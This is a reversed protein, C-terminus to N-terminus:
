HCHDCVRKPELTVQCVAIEIAGGTYPKPTGPRTAGPKATPRTRGKNGNVKPTKAPIPLQHLIVGYAARVQAGTAAQYPVTMGLASPISLDNVPSGTVIAKRHAAGGQDAPTSAKHAKVPFAPRKKENGFQDNTGTTTYARHGM